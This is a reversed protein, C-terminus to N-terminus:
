VRERCSARGIEEFCKYSHLNSIYFENLLAHFARNQEDTGHRRPLSLSITIYGNNKKDAREFLRELQYKYKSPMPFNLLKRDLTFSVM